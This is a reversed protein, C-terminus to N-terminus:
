QAAPVSPALSDHPIVDLCQLLQPFRFHAPDCSTPKAKIHLVICYVASKIYGTGIRRLPLYDIWLAYVASWHGILWTLITEKVQQVVLGHQYISFITLHKVKLAM